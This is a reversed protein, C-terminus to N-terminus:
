LADEVDVRVGIGIDHRAGDVGQVEDAECLLFAKAAQDQFIM